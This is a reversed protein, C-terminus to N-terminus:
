FQGNSISVGRYYKEAQFHSTLESKPRELEIQKIFLEFIAFMPMPSCLELEKKQGFKVCIESHFVFNQKHFEKFHSSIIAFYRGINDDIQM